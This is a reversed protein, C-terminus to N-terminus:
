TGCKHHHSKRSSLFPFYWAVVMYAYEDMMIPYWELLLNMCGDDPPVMGTISEHGDFFLKKM